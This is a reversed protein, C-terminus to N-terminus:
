LFVANSKSHAGVIEHVDDEAVLEKVLGASIFAESGPGESLPQDHNSNIASIEKNCILKVVRQWSDIVLFEVTQTDVCCNAQEPTQLVWDENCCSKWEQNQPSKESAATVFATLVLLSLGKFLTDDTIVENLVFKLLEVVEYVVVNAAVFNFEVVIKGNHLLM